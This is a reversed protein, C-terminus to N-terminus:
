SEQHRSLLLEQTVSAFFEGAPERVLATAYEDYQTEDFNIIIVPVGMRLAVSPLSNAPEVILTSGIVFLLHSDAVAQVSAAFSGEPLSQNFMVTETRLPSDCHPCRPIPNSAFYNSRMAEDHSMSYNCSGTKYPLPNYKTRKDSCILGRMHGHLEIVRDDPTGGKQHLSDINQTIVHRLKGQSALLGFFSHASNPLAANVKPLLSHKMDWWYKVSDEDSNFAQVTMRSACFSGWISDGTDSRFPPIGSEVSIGAGSLCVVNQAGRVLTAIDAATTLQDDPHVVKYTTSVIGLEDTEQFTRDFRMEQVWSVGTSEPIISLGSPDKIMLQCSDSDSLNGETLLANVHRLFQDFAPQQEAPYGSRMMDVDRAVKALLGSVTGSYGAHAYSEQKVGLKIIEWQSADTMVVRASLQSPGITLALQIGFPPAGHEEIYDSAYCDVGEPDEGLWELFSPRIDCM